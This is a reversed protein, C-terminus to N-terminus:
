ASMQGGNEQDKACSRLISEKQSVRHTSSPRPRLLLNWISLFLMLEKLYYHRTSM